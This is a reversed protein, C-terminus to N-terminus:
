RERNASIGLIWGGESPILACIGSRQRRAVVFVLRIGTVLTKAYTWRRAL